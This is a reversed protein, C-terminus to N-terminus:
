GILIKLPGHRRQYVAHSPSELGDRNHTGLLIGKNVYRIRKAIM